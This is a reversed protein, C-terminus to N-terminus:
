AESSSPDQEAFLHRFFREPAELFERTVLYHETERYTTRRLTGGDLALLTAGPYALLIPSHTAILFQAQGPAALEHIVRLFALQRQPSLAAEPEDLLYLGDEFRNRFLALFAEGHSQAHLSRGGYAQFTSGVEELHTAFNFFTEARMFFGGAVRHQWSLALARGLAAGDVREGYHHDRSGGHPNFGVVWGIAELLTSKGSGNEGVPFTVPADFTIAFGPQFLPLDFPHTGPVVRDDRLSIRTLFPSPKHVLPQRKSRPPM